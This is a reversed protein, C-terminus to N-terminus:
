EYGKNYNGRNKYHIELMKVDRLWRGYAAVISICFGYLGARWLGKKLYHKIFYFPFALLVRTVVWPYPKLKTNKARRGSGINLKTVMHEINPFSYHYLSGDLKVVKTKKPLELQDWAAHDPMRYSQKNYLKNRWDVNIKYWPNGHPPMTILPIAYVTKKNPSDALLQKISSILDDSPLEDADLDLVWEYKCAQEVLRKQKGNGLWSQRIVQAGFSEAIEITKDTSGSDIIHIDDTLLRVKELVRGIMREENQTRIYCSINEM